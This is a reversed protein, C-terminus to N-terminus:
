SYYTDWSTTPTAYRSADTYQTESMYQSYLGGNVNTTNGWVNGGLGSLVNTLLASTIPDPTTNPDINIDGFEDIGKNCATLTLMSFLLIVANIKLIKKMNKQKQM